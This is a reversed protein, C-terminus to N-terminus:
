ASKATSSPALGQRQELFQAVRGVVLEPYEILSYHTGRPVLFTECQRMEREFVHRVKAPTMADRQGAVLLAPVEIQSLLPEGDHEHLGEMIRHYVRFDLHEFGQAIALFVEQDLRADALGLKELIKPLRPIRTAAGVLPPLVPGLAIAGKNVIPLIRKSLPVEFATDFVRGYTGNILVLGQVREALDVAAQVCVQVGMSWGAITASRVGTADMVANMDRVHAEVSLNGPVAPPGSNYLGRYDWSVFRVRDELARLMPAWALLTGGLGNAIVVTHEGRGYQQVELRTGDYGSIYSREFEPLTM